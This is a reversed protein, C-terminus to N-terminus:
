IAEEWSQDSFGLWLPKFSNKSVGVGPAWFPHVLPPCSARVPSRQWTFVYSPQHYLQWLSMAVVATNYLILKDCGLTVQKLCHFQCM